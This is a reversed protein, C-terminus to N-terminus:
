ERPRGRRGAHAEESAEDVRDQARREEAKRAKEQHREVVELAARAAELEARAARERETCANAEREVQVTRAERRQRELAVGVEFSALQALDRPSAGDALADRESDQARAAEHRARLDLERAQDARARAEASAQAAKRANTARDDVANARVVRVAELSANTGAPKARARKSSMGTM